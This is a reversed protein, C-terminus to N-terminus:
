TCRSQFSPVCRCPTPRGPCTHVFACMSCVYMNMSGFKDKKVFVFCSFCLLLRMMRSLYFDYLIVSGIGFLVMLVRLFNWKLFHSVQMCPLYIM